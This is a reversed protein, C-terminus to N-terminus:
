DLLLNRPYSLIYKPVKLYEVSNEIGVLDDSESIV